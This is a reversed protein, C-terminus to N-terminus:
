WAVAAGLAEAAGAFVAVGPQWDLRGHHQEILRRKAPDFGGDTESWAMLTMTAM